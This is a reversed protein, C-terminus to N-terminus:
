LGDLLEFGGLGRKVQEQEKIDASTCALKELQNLFRGNFERALNFGIIVDGDRNKVGVNQKDLTEGVITPCHGPREITKTRSTARGEIICELGTNTFVHIPDFASLGNDNKRVTHIILERSVIGGTRARRKRFKISVNLFDIRQDVGDKQVSFVVEGPDPLPSASPTGQYVDQFVDPFPPCGRIRGTRWGSVTVGILFGAALKLHDRVLCSSPHVGRLPDVVEKRYIPFDGVIKADLVSQAVIGRIRGSIAAPAFHTHPQAM